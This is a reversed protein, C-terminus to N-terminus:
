NTGTTSKNTILDKLWNADDKELTLVSTPSAESRGNRVTIQSPSSTWIEVSSLNFQALVPGAKCSVNQVTNFPISKSQRIIIGSNITISNESIMFSASLIRLATLLFAPIGILVGFIIFLNSFPMSKNFPIYFVLSITLILLVLRTLSVLYTKNPLKYTTQLKLMM